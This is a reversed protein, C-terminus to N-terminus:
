TGNNEGLARAITHINNATAISGLIGLGIPIGKNHPEPIIAYALGFGTLATVKSGTIMDAGSVLGAQKATENREVVGETNLGVHTTMSDGVGFTAVAFGWLHKDEIEM